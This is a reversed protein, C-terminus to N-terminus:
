GPRDWWRSPAAPCSGPDPTDGRNGHMASREEIEDVAVGATM